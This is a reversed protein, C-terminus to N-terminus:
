LTKATKSRKAGARVLGCPRMATAKFEHQTSFICMSHLDRGVRDEYPKPIL